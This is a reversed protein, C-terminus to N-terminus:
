ANCQACGFSWQHAGHGPTQRCLWEGTRSCLSTRPKAVFSLAWAQAIMARSDNRWSDAAGDFIRWSAGRM